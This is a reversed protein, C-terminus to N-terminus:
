RAPCPRRRAGRGAPARRRRGRDQRRRGARGAGAPPRSARGAGARRVPGGGGAPGAARGPVAAGGAAPPSRPLDRPDARGTAGALVRGIVEAGEGLQEVNDLVLLMRRDRLYGTLRAMGEGGYSAPPLALARAIEDPVLDPDRVEALPVFVVGDPFAGGALAALHLALRTKGVGGPGTLTVLRQRDLLERVRETDRDRGFIPTAPVPLDYEPRELTRLPAFRQELGEAVVQHLAVPSPLDKLRHSGLPVDGVGPPWHGELLAHTSATLLIQGGHGAATVRAVEHVDMGVYGGGSLVGEGTHVGMRVRVPGGAPWAHAALCRQVAVAWSVADVARAFVCFFADGETEVEVGSHRALETRVIARHAELVPAYGDGLEALLRTSGEIDTM